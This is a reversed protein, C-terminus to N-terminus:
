FTRTLSVIAAARGLDRGLVYYFAGAGAAANTKSYAVAVEYDKIEKTLGIKYDTYTPNSGQATLSDATAGKYTQKGAHLGLTLGEMLPVNANVELYNTGAADKVGFTNGLSYSYKANIWKYGFGLYLENTDGKTAGVAYDGPFNYRLFGVDYNFDSAIHNKFGFYMDLEMSANTAGEKGNRETYLNSFFSSNTGFVGAYLGSHHEYDFGGQVAPKGGTQAIGRYLYNNVLSVNATFPSAAETALEIESGVGGAGGVPPATEEAFSAQMACVGLIAAIWKFKQM